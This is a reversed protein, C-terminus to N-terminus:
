CRAIAVRQIGALDRVIEVEGFGAARAIDAVSDAQGIGFEVAVMNTCLAAQPFIRRYADLGDVGGDLAGIPECRVEPELSQIVASPIYPPNSVVADFRRGEGIVPELLDGSLTIVRDSVAHKEANVRAVKLAEESTDIAWIRAEPLHVALAIAIAGTGTGVDVVTANAQLRSLMQEVLSETEPRPILVAPTVNIPLGFFDREGVIYALPYRTARKQLMEALAALEDESLAREPHALIDLRSAHIAHALLLQADLQPTEVGAERLLAIASRLEEGVTAGM